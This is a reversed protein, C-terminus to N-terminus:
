EVKVTANELVVEYIYGFGLDQNLAVKGKVLVVDGKKVESKTTVTLDKSNSGDQIHLWNRGMVKATYKVVKGRVSIQKGNLASKDTFIEAVTKGGAAKKIGSVSQGHTNEMGTHPEAVAQAHPNAVAQGPKDTIIQNVFYIMDFDRKLAKSHFKTFPMGTNFAVMDGKKLVTKPGAAWHEQKGDNIKVYTYNGAEMTEVVKGHIRPSSNQAPGHPNTESQAQVAGHLLFCALILTLGSYGSSRFPKM